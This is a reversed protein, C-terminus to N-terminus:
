SKLLIFCMMFYIMSASLDNGTTVFPGSALAPDIKFKHLIIPLITGSLAAFTMASCMSIGVISALKHPPVTCPGGFYTLSVWLFIGTILGCVCGMLIGVSVEKISIRFLQGPAIDGLAIGRVTVASAQMGTNGGMSMIVPVFAALGEIQTLGIMKRIIMSILIGACMTIFLWPLRMAAVRVPSDEHTEMDPAGAMRAIDEVAEEDMVEMVDDATIRGVLRGNKDLVPMVYLDYKRFNNAITEQDDDTTAYVPVDEIVDKIKSNRPKSLLESINIGGLLHMDGDVAFIMSIPDDYEENAIAMIAEQVTADAKVACLEPTMLDGASDEEYGLLKKLEHREEEPLKELIENHKNEDIQRFIDARDDSAMERLIEVIRDTDFFEILDETVAEEMESIIDSAQEPSLAKLFRLRISPDTNELMDAADAPEMSMFQAKFEPLEQSDLLQLLHEIKESKSM